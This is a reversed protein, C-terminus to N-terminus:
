HAFVMLVVSTEGIVATIQRMANIAPAPAVATPQLLSEVAGLLSM